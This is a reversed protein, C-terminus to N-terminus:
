QLGGHVAGDKLLIRTDTFETALPDHSSLVVSKGSRAFERFLGLIKKGNEQDLSATPEDALIVDPNKAWARAIAVRQRQGGSLELPRKDKFEAMGVADLAELASKKRHPRHRIFYEVNELASLTDFLFFQQFVFGLKERRLLNKQNETMQDLREGLYLVEGSSSGSARDGIPEILGLINLLTSKGSGSPGSLLTTQGASIALTLNKLAPSQLKGLPYSFDLKRVEYLPRVNQASM